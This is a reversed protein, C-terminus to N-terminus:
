KNYRYTYMSMNKEVYFGVNKLPIWGVWLPILLWFMFKANALMTGVLNNVDSVSNNITM